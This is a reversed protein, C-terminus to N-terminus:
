NSRRITYRFFQGTDTPAFNFAAAQAAFNVLSGTNDVIRLSGTFVQMFGAVSPPAIVRYNIGGSDQATPSLIVPGLPTVVGVLLGHNSNPSSLLGDPDDLRFDVPIGRQVLLLVTDSTHQSTLHVTNPTSWRCPEVFIGNRPEACVSYVGFPLGTFSVRGASNTVSAFARQGTFGAATDPVSLSAVVVLGAPSDTGLVSVQVALTASTQAWCYSCVILGSFVTWFYSAHCRM